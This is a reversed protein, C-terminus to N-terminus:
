AAAARDWALGASIDAPSWVSGTGTRYVNIGAAATEALGNTGWPTTAGLPPGPSLVLPFTPKGNFLITRTGHDSSTDAALATSALCAIAASTGLLAALAIGFRRGSSSLM